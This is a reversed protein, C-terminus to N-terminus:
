VSENNWLQQRASLLEIEPRAAVLRECADLVARVHAPDPGVMAVGIGARRHRELHDVEAVAAPFRRALEAMIPKVVSRKQKLSRVDGLRLDLSLSGVYM